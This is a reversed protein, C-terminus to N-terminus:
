GTKVGHLAYIQYKKIMINYIHISVNIYQLVFVTYNAPSYLLEFIHGAISFTISYEYLFYWETYSLFTLFITIRQKQM